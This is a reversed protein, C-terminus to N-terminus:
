FLFKFSKDRSGFLFIIEGIITEPGLVLSWKINYIEENVNVNVNVTLHVVLMSHDDLEVKHNHSTNLLEKWEIFIELKYRSQYM